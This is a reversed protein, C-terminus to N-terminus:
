DPFPEQMSPNCLAEQLRQQTIHLTCLTCLAQGSCTSILMTCQRLSSRRCIAGAALAEKLVLPPRISWSFAVPEVDQCCVVSHWLSAAQVIWGVIAIGTSHSEYCLEVLHGGPAANDVGQLHEETHSVTPRASAFDVATRRMEM